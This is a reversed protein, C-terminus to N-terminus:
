KEFVVKHVSASNEWSNETVFTDCNKQYYEYNDNIIKVLGKLNSEDYMIEGFKYETIITCVPKVNLVIVPIRYSAFMYISTPVSINDHGIIGIKKSPSTLVEKIEAKVFSKNYIFLNPKSTVTEFTVHPAIILFSLNEPLKEIFYDLRNNKAASISILDPYNSEQLALWDKYLKQFELNQDKQIEIFKRYNGFSAVHIKQHSYKPLYQILDSHFVIIDSAAKSLFGRIFDNYKKSKFNHEYINHCSWVMKSGSIKSAFYITLLRLYTFVVGRYKIYRIHYYSKQRFLIKLLKIFGGEVVEIDEISSLINKYKFDYSSESLILHKM